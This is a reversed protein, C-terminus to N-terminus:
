FEIRNAVNEATKRSSNNINGEVQYFFRLYYLFKDIREKNVDKNLTIPLIKKLKSPKECHVAVGDINYLADGLTIVKKHMTLAEIGVTSNITIVALARNLMQKMNTKKVFIVEEVNEYEKKLESYNNRSMDEPHEKIILKINKGHLMNYEHVAELVTQLLLKMDKISKSNYFIQTDRSVQFPVFIYEDPLKIDDNRKRRFTQKFVFYKIAQWLTIHVYLKPSINIASGIMSIGKVLAVKSLNEKTKKFIEEDQPKFLYETLKNSDIKIKDFFEGDKSISANANIGKEDCTITYPRFLGDEFYFTKLGRKQAIYKTIQDIWHYGNFLCVADISHKEIYQDIFLMYRKYIALEKKSVDKKLVNRQYTINYIKMKLLTKDSIPYEQKTVHFPAFITQIKSKFLLEGLELKILHCNHGRDILEEAIDMFFRKNRNGRLFLYNAM